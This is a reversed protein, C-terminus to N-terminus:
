PLKVDPRVSRHKICEKSLFVPCEEAETHVPSKCAERCLPISDKQTRDIVKGDASNALTSVSTPSHVSACSEPYAGEAKRPVGQRRM